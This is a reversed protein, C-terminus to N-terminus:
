LLTIKWDKVIPNGAKAWGNGNDHLYHGPHAMNELSISHGSEIEQGYRHYDGDDSNLNLNIKWLFQDVLSGGTKLSYTEIGKTIVDPFLYKDTGIEKILYTYHNRLKTPTRPGHSPNYELFEYNGAQDGTTAWKKFLWDKPPGLFKNSEESRLEFKKKGASTEQAEVYPKVEVFWVYSNAPNTWNKCTNASVGASATGDNGVNGKADVCSKQDSGSTHQVALRIEYPECTDRYWDGVSMTAFHSDYGTTFGWKDEEETAVTLSVHTDVIVPDHEYHNCTGQRFKIHDTSLSKDNLFLKHEGEDGGDPKGEICFKYISAVKRPCTVRPQQEELLRDSGRLHQVGNVNKTMMAVFLFFLYSYITSNM